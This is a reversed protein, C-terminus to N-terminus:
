DAFLTAVEGVAERFIRNNAFLTVGMGAWQSGNGSFVLVPRLPQTTEVALRPAKAIGVAAEETDAFVQLAASIKDLSDYGYVIVGHELTQRRTFTNWAIAPYADSPQTDLWAAYQLAQASLAAPTHASLYLPPWVSQANKANLTPPTAHSAVYSELLVHANAGGFGFSNVGMWLLQGNPIDLPTFQTIVKLNLGQFDINPNLTKVHLSPPLARNKLCLVTKFLGAMGSATELHGVNTKASGIPLPNDSRRAKGIMEGLAKTELPDGVATGTGHAEIYSICNLDIGAQRYIRNLLQGQQEPSPVTMGHTHGDCNIGTAVIVAHIPDGDREAQELPKLFLIGAGEARVYGDGNADFTQCRGNPSLMSAKSFGVFGFPHMLM